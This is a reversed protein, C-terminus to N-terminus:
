DTSPGIRKTPLPTALDLSFAQATGFSTRVTPDQGRSRQTDFADDVWGGTIYRLAIDKRSWICWYISDAAGASLVHSAALTLKDRFGPDVVLRQTAGEVAGVTNCVPGIFLRGRYRAKPRGGGPEHEPIGTATNSLSLTVAVESPYPFVGVGAPGLTWKTEAIPPGMGPGGVGQTINYFKMDCGNTARTIAPSLQACVGFSQPANTRNYFDAILAQLRAIDAAVPVDVNSLFFTFSNMAADNPLGSVANLHTTVFVDCPM